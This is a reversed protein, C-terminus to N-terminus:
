KFRINSVKDVLDRLFITLDRNTLKGDEEQVKLINEICEEMLVDKYNNQAAKLEDIASGVAYEAQSMAVFASSKKKNEM